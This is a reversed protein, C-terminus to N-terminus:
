SIGELAFSCFPNFEPCNRLCIIIPRWKVTIAVIIIRRLQKPTFIIVTSEEWRDEPVQQFFQDPHLYHIRWEIEKWEQRSVYSPCVELEGWEIDHEKDKAETKRATQQKHFPTVSVGVNRQLEHDEQRQRGLALTQAQEVLSLLSRKTKFKIHYVIFCSSLKQECDLSQFWLMLSWLFFQVTSSKGLGIHIIM